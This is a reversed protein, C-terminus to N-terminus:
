PKEEIPSETREVVNINLNFFSTVWIEDERSGLRLVETWFRRVLYGFIFLGTDDVWKRVEKIVGEFYVDAFVRKARPWPKHLAFFKARQQRGWPLVHDLRVPESLVWRVMAHLVDLCGATRAQETFSSSLRFMLRVIQAQEEDIDGHSENLFVGAVEYISWGKFHSRYMAIRELAEKRTPRRASRPKSTLEYYRPDLLHPYEELETLLSTIRRRFYEKVMEENLGDQLAMFIPGQYATKRPFYIEVFLAREGRTFMYSPPVEAM